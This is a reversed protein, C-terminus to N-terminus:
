LAVLTTVESAVLILQLTDCSMIGCSLHSEMVDSADIISLTNIQLCSSFGILEFNLERVRQNISLGICIVTGLISITPAM